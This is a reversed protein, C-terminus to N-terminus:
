LARAARVAGRWRAPSPRHRWIRGWRRSCVSPLEQMLSM